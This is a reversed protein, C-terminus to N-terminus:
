EDRVEEINVMEWVEEWDMEDVKLADNDIFTRFSVESSISVDKYFLLVRKAYLDARVTTIVEGAGIHEYTETTTVSRFINSKINSNSLITDAIIEANARDIDLEGQEMLKSKDVNIALSSALNKALSENKQKVILLSATEFSFVFFLCIIAMVLMISISASGKKNNLNFIDIM